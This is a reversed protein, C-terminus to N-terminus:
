KKFAEKFLPLQRKDYGYMDTRKQLEGKENVFNTIYYIYVPIKNKLNVHQEASRGMAGRIRDSTWGGNDKLLYEAFEVPKEMRVCGSSYARFADNFYQKHPTDHLYVSHKNPFMFKVDGLSNRETPQQKFSWNRWDKKAEQWNVSHIDVKKGKYYADMDSVLLLNPNKDVWELIEERAISTPVNWIPSFVIYEMTANFIPSQTIHDGVIVKMDLASQEGEFVHLMFEPANVFVYRNGLNDPLWRLRERNLEALQLMEANGKQAAIAESLQTYLPHKPIYTNLFDKLDRHQQLTENLQQALPPMQPHIDWRPVKMRGMSHDTAYQLLAASTQVDLRIKETIKEQEKGQVPPASATQQAQQLAAIGYWEPEFGHQSATQLAEIVAPVQSIQVSDAQLSQWCLNNQRLAYLQKLQSQLSDARHATFITQTITSDALIHLLVSDQFTKSLYPPPPPAAIAGLPTDKVYKCASAGCVLLAALLFIRKM